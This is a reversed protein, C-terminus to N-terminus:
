TVMLGDSMRVGIEWQGRATRVITQSVNAPTERTPVAGNVM